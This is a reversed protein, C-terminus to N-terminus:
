EGMIVSKHSRLQSNVWCSTHSLWPRQCNLWHLRISTPISFYLERRNKQKDRKCFSEHEINAEMIPHKISTWEWWRLPKGLFFPFSCVRNTIVHTNIWKDSNSHSSVSVCHQSIQNPTVADARLFVFVFFVPASQIVARSQSWLWLLLLQPEHSTHYEWMHLQFPKFQQGYVSTYTFHYRKFLHFHIKNYLTLAHFMQGIVEAAQQTHSLSM